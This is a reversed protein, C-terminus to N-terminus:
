KMSLNNIEVANLDLIDIPVIAGYERLSEELRQLNYVTLWSKLSAYQVCRSLKTVNIRKDPDTSVALIARKWQQLDRDTFGLSRLTPDTIKTCDEVTEAGLDFFMAMFHSLEFTHLWTVLSPMSPSASFHGLKRAPDVNSCHSLLRHARQFRREELPLMKLSQAAAMPSPLAAVDEKTKCHLAAEFEPLFRQLRWSELWLKLSAPGLTNYANTSEKLHKIHQLARRWLERERNTEMFENIRNMHARTLRATQALQTMKFSDLLPQLDELEWHRLWALVSSPRYHILPGQSTESEKECGINGVDFCIPCLAGAAAPASAGNGM